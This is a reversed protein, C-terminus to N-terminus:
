PRREVPAAVLLRGDDYAVPGQRRLAAYVDPEDIRDVVVIGYRRTVQPLLAPTASFVVLRKVQAEDLLEVRADFALRGALRPDSWLLWDAWQTTAWIRTGPHSEAIRSVVSAAAAPFRPTFWRSPHRLIGVSAALALVVGVMGLLQNLRDENEIVKPRRISGLAKPFFAVAFLSLWVWNRVALLAFVVVIAGALKEYTTYSGGTRALLWVFGFALAFLPLSVLSFSSPQWQALYRSLTSNFITESYYHWAGLGYPTALLCAWPMVLALSGPHRFRRAKYGQVVDVSGRLAVLAAGLVVSGHLNAWLGLVGVLLALRIWTVPGAATLALVAVFPVYAFSQTRLQATSLALPLLAVLVVPAVSRPEAGLRRALWVAAALAAVLLLVHVAVALRMGGVRELEYITLQALWQQDVWRRGYAWITLTDHSPIGLSAVVRGGVLAFWSDTSVLYRAFALLAAAYGGVLLVLLGERGIWAGRGAARIRAAPAFGPRAAATSMEGAM